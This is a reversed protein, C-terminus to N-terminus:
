GDRYHDRLWGVLAGDEDVTNWPWTGWGVARSEARGGAM